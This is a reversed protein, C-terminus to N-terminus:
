VGKRWETPLRALLGHLYNRMENESAAEEPTADTVPVVDEVKLREDPQLFEYISEDREDLTEDSAVRLIFLASSGSIPAGRAIRENRGEWM